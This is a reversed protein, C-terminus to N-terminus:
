GHALRARKVNSSIDMFFGDRDGIDSLIVAGLDDGEPGDACPMGIAILEGALQL